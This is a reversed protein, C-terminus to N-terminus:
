ISSRFPFPGYFECNITCSNKILSLTGLKMRETVKVLVDDEQLKSFLAEEVLKTQVLVIIFYGNIV